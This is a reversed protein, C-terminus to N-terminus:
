IERKSKKMYFTATYKTGVKQQSQITLEGDMMRFINRISNLALGTQQDRSDGMLDRTDSEFIMSLFSESMGMGDDRLNLDYCAYGRHRSPREQISFHISGGSSTYKVNKYVLSMLAQDLKARDGIVMNNEIDIEEIVFHQEKIMAREKARECFDSIFGSLDIREEKLSKRGEEVRAINILEKTYDMLSDATEEIKQLTGEVREPENLQTLAIGTLTRIGTIPTGMNKSLNILFQNKESVLKEAKTIAAEVKEENNQDRKFETDVYQITFIVHTPNEEEDRKAVIFSARSIGMALQGMFIESILNDYKMRSAVTTVDAFLSMKEREEDSVGAELWKALADRVDGDPAIYNRIYDVSTLETYYYDSLDISYACTYISSFAGIVDLQRELNEITIQMDNTQEDVARDISHYSILVALTLVVVTVVYIITMITSFTASAQQRLPEPSNYIMLPRVVINMVMSLVFAVSVIVIIPIYKKFRKKKLNKDM